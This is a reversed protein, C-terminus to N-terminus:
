SHNENKGMKIKLYFLAKKKGPRKSGRNGTQGSMGSPDEEM